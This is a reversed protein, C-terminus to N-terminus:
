AARRRARRGRRRRRDHARDDSGIRVLAPPPRRGSPATGVLTGVMAVGASTPAGPARGGVDHGSRRGSWSSARRRHGGAGAAVADAHRSRSTAMSGSRCSRASPACCRRPGAILMPAAHRRTSSTTSTAASPPRTRTPTASPTSTSWSPAAPSPTTPRPWSAGTSSRSRAAAPGDRGARGVALRLRPRRRDVQLEHRRLRRRLGQPHHGPHPARHGRLLRLAAQRRPPHHRRVGPRRRAPLRARRRVHRAPHQVRRVHARLPGGERVCEIDLVGALVQPQNGVIGVPHGDLRAFGCVINLPGTRATSSSSATTSSRTSSRRCTTPSTPAAPILDLLEPCPASPTTPPSRRM